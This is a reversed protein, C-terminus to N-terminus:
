LKLNIKHRQKLSRIQPKIGLSLPLSKNNFIEITNKTVKKTNATSFLCQDLYFEDKLIGKVIEIVENEYFHSEESM